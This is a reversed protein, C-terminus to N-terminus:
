DKDTILVTSRIYTADTLQKLLFEAVDARSISDGAGVTSNADVIHYHPNLAENTLRTAYVITYDLNSKQLLEEGSNIDAVISSMLKLAFRILPNPKFNHTALFSSMVIVRKVHQQKAVAILAAMSAAIVRDGPKSSGLTSIIADQGKVAKVLDSENRADGIITTVNKNQTAPDPSRVFATVTHGAALAQDVLLAGTRGAAGLILLKM